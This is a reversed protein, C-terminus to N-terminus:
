PSAHAGGVRELRRLSESLKRSEKKKLADGTAEVGQGDGEPSLGWLPQRWCSITERICRGEIFPVSCDAPCKTSNGGGFFLPTSKSILIPYSKCLHAEAEADGQQLRWCAVPLVKARLERGDVCWGRLM